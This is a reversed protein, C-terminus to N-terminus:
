GAKSAMAQLQERTCVRIWPDPHKLLPEIRHSDDRSLVFKAASLLFQLRGLGLSAVSIRSARLTDRDFSWTYSLVPPSIFECLVAPKGTDVQGVSGAPAHLTEEGMLSRECEKLMADPDFCDNEIPRDPSLLLFQPHAGSVWRYARHDVTTDLMSSSSLGELYRLRWEDPQNRQAVWVILTGAPGDAILTPTQYMSDGMLSELQMELFRVVLTPECLALVRSALAKFEKHSACRPGAVLQAIALYEASNLFDHKLVSAASL